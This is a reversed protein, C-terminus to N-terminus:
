KRCRHCNLCNQLRFKRIGRDKRYGSDYRYHQFTTLQKKEQGIKSRENEVSLIVACYADQTRQEVM